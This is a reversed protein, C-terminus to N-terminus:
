LEIEKYVATSEESMLGLHYRISGEFTDLSNRTLFYAGAGLVAITLAVTTRSHFLVYYQLAIAAGIVLGAMMLIPFMMSGRSVQPQQTFPMGEISRLELGLYVSAAAVSYGAFLAGDLLGWNWAWFLFLLAHPLVVLKIWMWAYVGRAAGAFAHSPALNFIWAGKYDGGYPLLTCMWFLMFGFMHPVGHAPAFEGSFPNIRAGRILWVMPAILAPVMGLFQRRFQWDRSLMRSLYEFGARSGPGGFLKAVVNSIRSRRPKVRSGSGTHVIDSIRILFDGSLSRLGFVFSGIVAFTGTAVLAPALYPPWQSTMWAPLHVRRLLPQVRPITVFLLLPVMEAIQGVAKLRSIPVLRILWGFIACCTLAMLLGVAFASTVHLLPYWWKAGRTFLGALAPIGSTGPVFYLLIRLLHALKAATYTAGNVPQHALVLGETPNVLSNGTESLLPGFLLFATVLMFTWFYTEVSPRTAAFFLSGAGVLAFYWLAATKLAVGSRGLQNLIERRESLMEFLGTLLWFQKPDIGFSRLFRNM